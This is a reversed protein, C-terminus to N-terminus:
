LIDMNFKQSSETFEFATKSGFISIKQRHSSQFRNQQRTQVQLSKQRQISQSNKPSIRRLRIPHRPKRPRLHQQLSLHM